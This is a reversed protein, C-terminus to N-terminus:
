AEEDLDVLKAETEMLHGLVAGGAGIIGKGGTLGYIRDSLMPMWNAVHDTIFKRVAESAIVTEDTWGNEEAYAQKLLLLSTFELEVGAFDCRQGIGTTIEYGWAEYFGSVDALKETMSFSLPEYAVENARCMVAGAFLRSHESQLGALGFEHARGSLTDLLEAANDDGDTSLRVSASRLATITEESPERFLASLTDYWTAREVLGVEVHSTTM